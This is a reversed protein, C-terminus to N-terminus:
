SDDRTLKIFGVVRVVFDHLVTFHQGSVARDGPERCVFVERRPSFCSSGTNHNCWARSGCLHM